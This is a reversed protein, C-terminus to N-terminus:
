RWSNPVSIVSPGNKVSASFLAANGAPIGSLDSQRQMMGAPGAAVAAGARQEAAIVGASNEFELRAERESRGEQLQISRGDARM